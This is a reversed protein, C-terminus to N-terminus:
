NILYKKPIGNGNGENDFVWSLIWFRTGDFYLQISNIGREVVPGDAVNKTEYTSWVHYIAGFNEVKRSIEKEYFGDKELAADNKHFEKLTILKLQIKGNKDKQAMGVSANPVHLLSDRVYSIKEGKKVTVVDYYAKIIGDLTGVEDGFSTKVQSYVAQLLFFASLLLTIKKM